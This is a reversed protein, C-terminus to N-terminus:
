GGAYRILTINRVDGNRPDEMLLVSTSVDMLTGEDTYQPHELSVSKKGQAFAQLLNQRSFKDIFDQRHNEPISQAGSDILDDFM